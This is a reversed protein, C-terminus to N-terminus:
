VGTNSRSFSSNDFKTCLYGINYGISSLGGRFTALDHDRLGMKFKPAAFTDSFHRFGSEDYKRYLLM